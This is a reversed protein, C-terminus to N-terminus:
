DGLKQELLWEYLAPNTYARRWAGAHGTNPYLTFRVDAGCDMLAEVLVESQYPLVVDDQAGHFVWTPLDMLDCINAPVGRSEYAYGGAIPAMAAYRKPDRLAMHWSGFGGMSLGTLYIRDTDVHYNDVVYDLVYEISDLEQSWYSDTPCQPSLLIFPFDPQEEVIGPPGEKKLLQLANQTDGRQDRGHLFIMLPWAVGALRDYGLPLFLLYNIKSLSTSLSYTQHLQKM